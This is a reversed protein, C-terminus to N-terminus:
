RRRSPAAEAYVHIGVTVPNDFYEGTRGDRLCLKGSGPM